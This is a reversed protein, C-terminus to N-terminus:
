FVKERRRERSNVIPVGGDGFESLRHWCESSFHSCNDLVCASRIGAEAVRKGVKIFEAAGGDVWIEGGICDFLHEALM